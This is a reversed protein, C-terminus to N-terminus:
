EWFKVPYASCDETAPTTMHFHNLEQQPLQEQMYEFVVREEFRIHQEVTDAFLELNRYSIQGNSNREYIRKILEHENHLVAAYGRLAIHHQLFPILQSEESAMHASLDNNWFQKIFDQMVTLPAKKRIGKKLLLCALLENHHQRSLPQLNDHRKMVIDEKV